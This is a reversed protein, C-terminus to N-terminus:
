LSNALMIIAKQIHARAVDHASSGYKGASTNGDLSQELVDLAAFRDVVEELSKGRDRALLDKRYQVVGRAPEYYDVLLNCDGNLRNDSTGVRHLKRGLGSHASRLLRRALDRRCDSGIRSRCSGLGGGSPASHILANRRHSPLPSSM